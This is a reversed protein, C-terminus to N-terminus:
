ALHRPESRDRSITDMQCGAGAYHVPVIVKTRDTITVEILSGDTKPTDARIDVYVPRAEAAHRPPDLLLCRGGGVHGSRRWREERIVAM